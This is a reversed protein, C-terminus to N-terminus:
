EVTITGYGMGMSCAFRFSGKKAPTFQITDAPSRSVKSVGLEKITFARLCGQVSSDLTIEVPQGAKVTIENPYYNANKLSLTIQQTPGDSATVAGTSEASSSGKVLFFSGILVVLVIALIYLTSKNIGM